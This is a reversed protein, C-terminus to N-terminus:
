ENCSRSSSSPGQRMKWLPSFAWGNEMASHRFALLSRAVYFPVCFFFVESWVLAHPRLQKVWRAVVVEPLQLLLILLPYLSVPSLRDLRSLVCMECWGRIVGISRDLCILWSRSLLVFGPLM